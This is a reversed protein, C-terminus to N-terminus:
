HVTKRHADTTEHCEVITVCVKGDPICEAFKLSLAKVQSDDNVLGAHQIADLVPKLVNDLDRKRRDPPHVIINVAVHKDGFGRKHFINKELFWLDSVRKRFQRAARSLLTRNGVRRWYNNVSPPYPLDLTIQSDGTAQQPESNSADSRRCQVSRRADIGLKRLVKAAELEGRKGKRRSNTM